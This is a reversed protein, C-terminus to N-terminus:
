IAAKFEVKHAPLLIWNGHFISLFSLNWYYNREKKLSETKLVDSWSYTIAIDSINNVFRGANAYSLKRFHYTLLLFRRDRFTACSFFALSLLGSSLYLKLLTVIISMKTPSAKLSKTENQESLGVSFLPFMFIFIINQITKPWLNGIAM